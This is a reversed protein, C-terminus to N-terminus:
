HSYHDSRHQQGGDDTSGVDKGGDATVFGEVCVAEGETGALTDFSEETHGHEEVLVVHLENAALLEFVGFGCLADLLDLSGTVLTVHSGVHYGLIGFLFGLNTLLALGLLREHLGVLDVFGLLLLELIVVGVLFENIVDLVLGVGDFFEDLVVPVPLVVFCPLAIVGDM